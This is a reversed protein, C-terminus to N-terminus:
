KTTGNNVITGSVRVPGKAASIIGAIGNTVASITLGVALTGIPNNLMKVFVDKM